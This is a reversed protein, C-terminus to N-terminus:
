KVLLVPLDCDATVKQAVSGMVTRGLLGYGHTGMVVMHAKKKQAARVIETAPNGVVWDCQYPVAHRDLFKRIPKLVKDAEEGHYAAAEESGLMRKVRAPLPPQVNVVYLVDQPGALNEHSALFALAKKTYASGDAAFVINM